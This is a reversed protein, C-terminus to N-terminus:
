RRLAIALYGVLNFAAHAAMSALLSRRREFVLALGIGVAILSPVILFFAVGGLHVLGFFIGSLVAAPWVSFRRRLSQYLFGRFFIEEGFPAALIVIPALLALGVGRVCAVVQQPEEPSHGLIRTAVGQVVALVVGAVVVLLLGALIGTGLDGWPRRPVGLTRVPTKRIAAVWWLVTGALAVEGALVALNYQASCSDIFSIPASLVVAVVLALIFVPVTEIPRWSVVPLQGEKRDPPVDPRPPTPQGM